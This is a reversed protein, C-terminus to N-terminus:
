IMDGDRPVSIVNHLEPLLSSPPVRSLFVATPGFDRSAHLGAIEAVGLVWVATSPYWSSEADYPLVRVDPVAWPMGM